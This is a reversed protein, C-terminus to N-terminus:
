RQILVYKFNANISYLIELFFTNLVPPTETHEKAKKLKLTLNKDNSVM